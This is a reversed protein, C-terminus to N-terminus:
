DGASEHEDQGLIGYERLRRYFTRRPMGLARAARVRNWGEAALAALIRRREEAKFDSLSQPLASGDGSDRKLAAAEGTAPRTAGFRLDEAEIVPGSSM